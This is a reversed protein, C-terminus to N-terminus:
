NQVTVRGRIVVLCGELEFEFGDSTKCIVTHGEKACIKVRMEGTEENAFVDITAGVDCSLIPEEQEEEEPSDQDQVPPDPPTPHVTDSHNGGCPAFHGVTYTAGEEVLGLGEYEVDQLTQVVPASALAPELASASGSAPNFGICALFAFAVPALPHITRTVCPHM